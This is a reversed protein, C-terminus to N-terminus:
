AERRELLEIFMRMQPTVYKSRHYVLQSWMSIEPCETDLIVLRGGRLQDRVVYEPM